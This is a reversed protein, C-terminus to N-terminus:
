VDKVFEKALCRWAEQMEDSIYYFIDDNSLDDKGVGIPEDDNNREDSEYAVTDSEYAADNIETIDIRNGDKVMITGQETQPISYSTKTTRLMGSRKDFFICRPLLEDLSPSGALKVFGEWAHYIIRFAVATNKFCKSVVIFSNMKRESRRWYEVKM